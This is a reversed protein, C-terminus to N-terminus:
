KGTQSRSATERQRLDGPMERAARNHKSEAKAKEGLAPDAAAIRLERRSRREPEADLVEAIICYQGAGEAPREGQEEEGHPFPGQGARECVAWPDHTEMLGACAYGISNSESGCPEEKVRLGGDPKSGCSARAHKRSPCEPPGRAHGAPRFNAPM